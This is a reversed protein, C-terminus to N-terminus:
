GPLVFHNLGVFYAPTRLHQKLEEDLRMITLTAGMMDLSTFFDGVFSRTIEIGAETLVTHIHNYLINLESSMTNGLGSVMVCVSDGSKIDLNELINNLMIEATANATKLKCTAQSFLGHHSVGIEMTGREILYNPRGVLPMICSALGVGISRTQSVARLGLGLLQELSYGRAAASGLTKWVLVEGTMGRRSQEADFAVDDDVILLEVRINEMKAQEIAEKAFGIDGIYNGVVCLIGMECQVARFAALFSDASPPAFVDGIAVADVADKGLYGMFAPAHGFGGGIVLSVKNSQPAHKYKLVRPHDIAVVSDGYCKVFGCISESIMEHVDNVFKQM